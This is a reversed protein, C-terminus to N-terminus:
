VGALIEHVFKMAEVKDPTRRYSSDSKGNKLGRVRYLGREIEITATYKDAVTEVKSQEEIM